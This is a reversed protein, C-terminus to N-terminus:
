RTGNGGNDGSELKEIVQRDTMSHVTLSNDPSTLGHTIEIDRRDIGLIEALYKILARNARGKEPVAKIDIKLTDGRWGAIRNMGSGATVKVKIKGM